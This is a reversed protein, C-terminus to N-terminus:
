NFFLKKELSNKNFSSILYLFIDKIKNFLYSKLFLRMLYVTM